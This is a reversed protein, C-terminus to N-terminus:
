YQIYLRHTLVFHEHAADSKEARVCVSDVVRGVVTPRIRVYIVAPCSGLCNTLAGNRDGSLSTLLRKPAVSAWGVPGATSDVQVGEYSMPRRSGGPCCDVVQRDRSVLLGDCHNYLLSAVTWTSLTIVVVVVLLLHTGQIMESVSLCVTTSFRSNKCLTLMAIYLETNAVTSNDTRRDTVCQCQTLVVCALIVFDERVSELKLM